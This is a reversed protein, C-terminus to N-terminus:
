ARAQAYLVPFTQEKLAIAASLLAWRKKTLRWRRTRPVKAILGYLHFRKLLRSIKTSQKAVCRGCSRLLPSGTLRARIDRNRFGNITNAGSLLAKFVRQDDASLPNFAKVSQGARTRKRQTITNLQKFAMGPDDVVALAELYRGNAALSVDRYRFLNAVGKRMPVWETVRRGQRQVRKRVKFAEPQNIVTEVRLVSGAKDYMKIWNMKARHKVRTGPLRQKCRDTMDSVVEGRFQGVLKKGLFNMVERAGFHQMSHSVLKGYLAKLDTARRFMVDTAYECQSTVWYYQM